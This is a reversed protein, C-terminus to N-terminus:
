EDGEDGYARKLAMELRGELKIPGGDHGAIKAPSDTGQLKSRRESLRVFAGSAKLDGDLVQDWIADLAEDIRKLELTRYEGVNELSQKRWAKMVAKMDNSVTGISCGIIEATQRFTKGRKVLDSVESRRDEIKAKKTKKPNAM